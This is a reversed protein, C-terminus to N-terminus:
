IQTLYVVLSYKIDIKKTKKPFVFFFTIKKNEKPFCFLIYNTKNEKSLFCFLIVLNDMTRNAYEPSGTGM